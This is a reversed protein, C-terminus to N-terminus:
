ARPICLIDAFPRWGPTAGPWRPDSVVYGRAMLSKIVEQSSSGNARLLPDSLESLIVPRYHDLIHSAGALVLHEMGEVDIKVFGPNLEFRAVLADLTTVEISVTTSANGSTSPHVLQGITSYEEKGEISTIQARGIQQAIGGEFVLVKDQVTNHALNRHLRRLANPTPEVAVVRGSTCKAALVSFFGINAGVDIIDRRPDLHQRFARVLEPEYAGDLILRRLLDSRRDLAFAGDFEEVRIVPDEVM